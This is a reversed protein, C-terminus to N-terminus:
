IFLIVLNCTADVATVGEINCKFSASHEKIDKGLFKSNYTKFNILTTM